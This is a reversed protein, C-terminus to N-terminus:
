PTVARVRERADLCPPIKLTVGDRVLVGTAPASGLRVVAPRAAYSTTPKPRPTKPMSAPRTTSATPSPDPGQTGRRAVARLANSYVINKPAPTHHEVATYDILVHRPTLSTARTTTGSWGGAGTRVHRQRETARATNM